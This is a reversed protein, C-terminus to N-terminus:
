NDFRQTQALKKDPHMPAVAKGALLRIRLPGLGDQALVARSRLPGQDHAVGANVDKGATIGSCPRTPHGVAECRMGQAFRHRVHPEVLRRFQRLQKPQRGSETDETDETTLPTKAKTLYVAM